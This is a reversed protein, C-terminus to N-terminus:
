GADPPVDDPGLGNGCQTARSCGSPETGTCLWGAEVSCATSCGDGGNTNGDDCQEGSQVVGDGCRPLTCDRKCGDTDVLNGDDCQEPEQLVGDGCTALEIHLRVGIYDTEAGEVAFDLQETEFVQFDKISGAGPNLAPDWDSLKLPSS